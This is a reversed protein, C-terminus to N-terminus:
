RRAPAGFATTPVMPLLVRTAAKRTGSAVQLSAVSDLRLHSDDLSLPVRFWMERAGAVGSRGVAGRAGGRGGHWVSGGVRRAEVAGRCSVGGGGCVRGGGERVAVAARVHTM